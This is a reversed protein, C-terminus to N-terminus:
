ERYILKKDIFNNVLSLIKYLTQIDGV